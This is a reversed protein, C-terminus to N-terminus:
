ALELVKVTVAGAGIAFIPVNEGVEMSFTAGARIEFGDASTVTNDKGIYISKNATSNNQIIIEKRGALPTVLLAAATTTVNAATNAMGINRSDNVWTRNYKDTTISAYDGDTSTAVSPIDSRVGLMYGGVDGSTHASDENKEFGSVVSIDAAVKLRGLADVQLPAYDGDTSVLSTDADHRVALVFKGKDGSTHASDEDFVAQETINVVNVDLANKAGFVTSTLLSGDSAQLFAGVHDSNADDATDYILRELAM